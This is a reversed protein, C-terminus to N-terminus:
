VFLSPYGYLFLAFYSNEPQTTSHFHCHGHALTYPLTHNDPSTTSKLPCPIDVWFDGLSVMHWSPQLKAPYWVIHRKGVRPAAIDRKKTTKLRGWFGVVSLSKCFLTWSMTYVAFHDLSHFIHLCRRTVLTEMLWRRIIFFFTTLPVLYMTTGDKSQKAPSM